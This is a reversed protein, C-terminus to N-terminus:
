EVTEIIPKHMSSALSAARQIEIAMSTSGENAETVSYGARISVTSSYSKLSIERIPSVGQGDTIGTRLCLRINKKAGLVDICANLQALKLGYPNAGGLRQLVRINQHVKEVVNKGTIRSRLPRNSFNDWPTKGSDDKLSDDSMIEVFRQWFIDFAHEENEGMLSLTEVIGWYVSKKRYPSIFRGSQLSELRLQAQDTQSIHHCRIKAMEGKRSVVSAPREGIPLVAAGIHDSYVVKNAM